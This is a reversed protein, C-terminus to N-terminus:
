PQANLRRCTSTAIGAAIDFRPVVGRALATKERHQAPGPTRAPATARALGLELERVLALERAQAQTPLAVQQPVAARQPVRERAPAPLPPRGAREQTM